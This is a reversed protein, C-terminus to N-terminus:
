LLEVPDLQKPLALDLECHIASMRSKHSLILNMSSNFQHTYNLTNLVPDPHTPFRWADFLGRHIEDLRRAPSRAMRQQLDHNAHCLRILSRVDTSMRRGPYQKCHGM